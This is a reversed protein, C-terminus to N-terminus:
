PKVKNIGFHRGVAHNGRDVAYEVITLKFSATFSANWGM